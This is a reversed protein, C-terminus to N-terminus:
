RFVVNSAGSCPDGLSCLVVGAGGFGHLLATFDVCVCSMALVPVHMASRDYCWAQVVLVMCFPQLM